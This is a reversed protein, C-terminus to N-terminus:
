LLKFLLNNICKIMINHFTWQTFIKSYELIFNNMELAERKVPLQNQCAYQELPGNCQIIM